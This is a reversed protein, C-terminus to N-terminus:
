DKNNHVGLCLLKSSITIDTGYEEVGWFILGGRDITLCTVTAFQPM